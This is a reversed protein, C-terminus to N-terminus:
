WIARAPACRARQGDLHPDGGAGAGDVAPQGSPSAHRRPECRARGGSLRHDIAARLCLDTDGNPGLIRSIRTRKGSPLAVVEDGVRVVGSTITGCYLRPLRREPALRAAGPLPLRDSNGDSAIHVTELYTLLPPGQYWPMHTSRHVINDGHLASIPIFTVDRIRLKTTFRVYEDRIREFVERSYDVLDMKNVAVVLHPIGLLSAIFGHRKSQIVVGNRADIL